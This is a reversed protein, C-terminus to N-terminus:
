IARQVEEVSRVVLVLVLPSRAGTLASPPTPRRSDEGQRCVATLCSARSFSERRPGESPASADQGRLATQGLATARYPRGVPAAAAPEAAQRWARHLGAAARGDAGHQIRNFGRGPPGPLPTARANPSRESQGLPQTGPWVPSNHGAAGGSGFARGAASGGQLTKPIAITNSRYGSPTAGLKKAYVHSCGRVM